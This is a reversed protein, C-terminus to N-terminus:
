LGLVFSIYPDDEPVSREEADPFVSRSFRISAFNQPHVLWRVSEVGNAQMETFVSGAMTRALGNRRHDSRVALVMLYRHAAVVGAREHEVREHAAVAVVEEDVGAIVVQRDFARESPEDRWSILGGVIETVEDLWPDSAGIDFSTLAGDDAPGSPRLIVEIIPRDKHGASERDM